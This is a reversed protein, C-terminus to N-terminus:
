HEFESCTVDRGSYRSLSAAQDKLFDALKEFNFKSTNTMEVRDQLVGSSLSACYYDISLYDTDSERNKKKFQSKGKAFLLLSAVVPLLPTCHGV